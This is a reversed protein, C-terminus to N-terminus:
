FSICKTFKDHPVCIYDVVARGRRSISTWNNDHYRGNLVCFKADNLFELLDHGHQNISKDLVNRPPISDFDGIIDSM